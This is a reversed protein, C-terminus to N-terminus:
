ELTRLRGEIGNAEGPSFFLPYLLRTESALERHGGWHAIESEAYSLDLRLLVAPASVRPDIRENGLVEFGLLSYYFKVHRPNVEILLDTAQRLQRAHIYAIHFIAALVAKSRVMNDVALKTFECLRVGPARLARVEDPYLKEVVLGTPSDTGVTITAIPQDKDFAALTILNPASESAPVQYGRWAYRREILYSATSRRGETNALRIKFRAERIDSGEDFDEPSHLLPQLAKPISVITDSSGGPSWPDAM